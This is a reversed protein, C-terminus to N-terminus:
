IRAIVLGLRDKLSVHYHLLIILRWLNSLLLSM